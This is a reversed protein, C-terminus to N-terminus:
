RAREAMPLHVTVTTGEGVKSRAVVSGGLREVLQQVIAMGLGTGPAQADADRYFREFLRAVSEDDMGVGTDRVRITLGHDHHDLRVSVHGAETYKVANSVLNTLVQRLAKRDCTFMPDGDIRHRLEVGPTTHPGLQGIVDAVLKEIDVVEPTLVVRGAEVRALDLVDDILQLLQRGASRIREADDRADEDDLEDQLMEAYGIIANLPTRLEHSMNALFVSKAKSAELAADRAQRLLRSRELAERQDQVVVLRGGRGLPVAEVHLHEPPTDLLDQITREALHQVAAPNRRVIGDDRDLLVLGVGARRFVQELREREHAVERLVQDTQSRTSSGLATAVGILLGALGLVLAEPTDFRAGIQVWLAVTAGILALGAAQLDRIPLVAGAVLVPLVGGLLVFPDGLVFAMLGTMLVMAGVMLQGAVKGRGTYLLAGAVGHSVAGASLSAAVIEDGSTVAYPVSPVFILALTGWVTALLRRRLLDNASPDQTRRSTM